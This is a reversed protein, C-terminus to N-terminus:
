YCCQLIECEIDKKLKASGIFEVRMVLFSSHIIRAM